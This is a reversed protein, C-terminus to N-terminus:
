DCDRVPQQLDHSLQYIAGEAGTSTSCYVGRQRLPRQVWVRAAKRHVDRHFGEAPRGIKAARYHITEHEAEIYHDHTQGRCPNM